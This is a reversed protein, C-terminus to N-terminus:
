SRNKIGSHEKFFNNWFTKDYEVRRLATLKPKHYEFEIEELHELEHDYFYSQAEFVSQSRIGNNFITERHSRYSISATCYKRNVDTYTNTEEQKLRISNINKHEKQAYAGLHTLHKNIEEHDLTTEWVQEVRLIAFSVQDIFIKGSYVTPYPRNTFKWNNRDTKFAIIYKGLDEDANSKEFQFEFKQFKGKSFITAYQIANERSGILASISNNKIDEKGANWKIQEVRRTGVFSHRYGHEYEKTIVEIDLLNKDDKNRIIHSYREANYPEVPHNIKINKIALKLVAEPSRFGTVQVEDLETISPKLLVTKQLDTALIDSTSYGMASIRINSKDLSTLEPLEFFGDEDAIRYIQHDEIIINAYPIPEKTIADQIKGSFTIAKELSDILVEAQNEQSHLVSSVFLSFVIHLIKM